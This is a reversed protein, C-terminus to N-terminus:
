TMEYRLSLLEAAEVNSKGIAQAGSTGFGPECNAVDHNTM